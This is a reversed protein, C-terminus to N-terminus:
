KNPNFPHLAQTKDLFIFADYRNPLNSPVYNGAERSPHYVVGIARHGRRQTLAKDHRWNRLLILKDAPPTQHLWAEWSGPKAAPVPMITPPRGWYSAAIVSGQYTGFGVIYVGASAHQERVLQGVNVEGAAAMDTYRADGVHTNHEWIIIKHHGHHQRLRNITELMHRDRINWSKANSIMMTRYYREANVAVLANQEVNFGAEQRAPLQSVRKRVAELVDGLYGACSAGQTTAQAYAQEDQNYSALCSRAKRLATLIAEDADPFNQVAELSEWLSYLDLGYFGVPESAPSENFQRLWDVLDAMEANAWMWSPWRQFSQLAAEAGNAQSAGRIYRNVEYAAPWDGEVAIVRFGKEQILRRTIAARWTYFEATGHSAEGLLVFQANGIEQLLVDLDQSTQLASIGAQPLNIAPTAGAPLVAEKIKSGCATSVFSWIFVLLYIAIRNM